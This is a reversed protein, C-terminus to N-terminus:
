TKETRFRQYFIIFGFFGVQNKKSSIRVVGALGSHVCGYIEYCGNGAVYGEDVPYLLEGPVCIRDSKANIGSIAM